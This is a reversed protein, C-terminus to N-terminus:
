IVFLFFLLAVVMRYVGFLIFTHTEVFRLLFKIAFIAVLFSVFFGTLFFLTNVGEFLATNKIMDLTTAAVMTPVALLFSFEVIAKRKMGLFMGGLITAGSRSVGPIVSIAQFLGIFFAKQYSLASLDELADEKEKRLLEFLIILIGGIFLAVVVTMGSGLLRRILSYFLFGVGLAPLLAVVIRKMMEWDLLLKRWYLVVVALIAGLQITIEFTKLFETDPIHLLESVLIMHGTSSVPLFETVGEVIGLIIAHLFDM